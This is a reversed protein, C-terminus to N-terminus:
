LLWSKKVDLDVTSMLFSLFCQDTLSAAKISRNIGDFSLLVTRASRSKRMVAMDSRVMRDVRLVRKTLDMPTRTAMLNTDM